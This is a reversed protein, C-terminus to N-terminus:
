AESVRLSENSEGESSYHYHKQGDQMVEKIVTKRTIAMKQLDYDSINTGPCREVGLRVYTSCQWVIKKYSYRSNWVRRKLVAGCHGCYLLGSCAYRKSAPSGKAMGYSVRRGETITQAREWIERLVIPPHHDHIYYQDVEGNNMLSHGKLHHPVFTKQCLVDGKYKENQIITKIASAQWDSHGMYTKIGAKTLAKAIKHFGMGGVYLTFILRVLEAEKENIVLGGKADKDYGLFRNTNLSIHGDQFKRRVRWKINDSISKSEEQALSALVTLLFEGEKSMTSIQENEFWVEVGCDRLDRVVELLVTTNRAFRSISKTLIIDMQGLRAREIMRQFEPRIEKVGSVGHDVFVGVSEYDPHKSMYSEFYHIQNQLSEAQAEHVTSVRVYACVRKTRNPTKETPLLKTIRM